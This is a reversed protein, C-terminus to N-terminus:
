RPTRFAVFRSASRGSGATRAYVARARWRVGRRLRVTRAFAGTRSLGVTVRLSTRYARDTGRRRLDLTVRGSLRIRDRRTRRSRPLRRVRLAVSTAATALPGTTSGAVTGAPPPQYARFAAAAPKPTFDNTHLGLQDLWSPGDSGINRLSYWLAVQVYDDQEVLKYARTLYDAQVERSVCGL